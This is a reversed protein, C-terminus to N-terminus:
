KPNFLAISYQMAQLSSIYICKTIIFIKFLEQPKVEDNYCISINTIDQFLKLSIWSIRISIYIPFIKLTQFFHIGSTSQSWKTNLFFSAAYLTPSGKLILIPLTSYTLSPILQIYFFVEIRSVEGHILWCRSHHWTRLPSSIRNAMALNAEPRWPTFHHFFFFIQTKTRPWPRSLYIDPAALYEDKCHIELSCSNSNRLISINVGIKM